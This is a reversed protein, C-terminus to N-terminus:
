GMEQAVDTVVILSRSTNPFLCAPFASFFLVAMLIKFFASGTPLRKMFGMIVDKKNNASAAAKAGPPGRPKPGGGPQQPPM